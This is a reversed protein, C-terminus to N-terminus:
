GSTKVTRPDAPSNRDITTWTDRSASNPSGTEGENILFHSGPGRYALTGAKLSDLAAAVPQCASDSM